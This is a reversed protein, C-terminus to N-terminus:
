SVDSASFTAKVLIFHAVKKLRDLIVMISDYQRMTKPFRTILDMSIVDWRWKPITILQLLGSPHKCEVKVRQCNFCRAMFEVVDRKLNLWYCFRKVITLTKQYRPHSSYTKVNFDRLIMNKLESNYLVYIRDRCMVLGNERLCYDM